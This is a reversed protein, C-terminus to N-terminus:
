KTVFRFPETNISTEIIDVSWNNKQKWEDLLQHLGKVAVCEIHHGPDVVVLGNALIDHAVHYSVDGTVYADAHKDVATQYFESGSGGLVAVRKIQRTDGKKAILRLGNINFVKLCYDAFEDVNMAQQLQGIRGMGRPIGTAPDIDKEVLPVTDQLQLQDALWDNMGGNVSDLNTHAAYVTIGNNLIKAYMANQPNRTDLDKAPHFMVPHHAFIFDVQREIAEDVVEPRVDLTTMIRTVPKDPNGIQLGVHDWSEALSPDCFKEFQNIIETGTTM